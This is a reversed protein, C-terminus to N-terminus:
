SLHLNDIWHLPIPWLHEQFRKRFFNLHGIPQSQEATVHLRNVSAHPYLREKMMDVALKPAISDDDFSMILMPKNITAYHNGHEQALALLSDPHRIIRSWDMAVGKPLSEGLKKIRSPFFGLLTTVVPIFIFFLWLILIRYGAEFFRWYPFQAAITIYADYIGAQSSLGLSNGGFSHGIVIKRHDPFQASIYSSVATFDKGAWDTMSAKTKRTHEFRSSGIGRYDYTFVHYGKSSLYSAFHFYFTQKIGTGGSIVIVKQNSIQPSFHHAVISVGDSAQLITKKM